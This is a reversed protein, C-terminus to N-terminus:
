TRGFSSNINRTVQSLAFMAKNVAQALNFFQHTVGDYVTCDVWVGSRRLAQALQEGESRLPDLEPLIITTAPLGNLDARDILNLQPSKLDLADRAYKSYFWEVAASNLPLTTRNEAHSSLGFDTGAMPSILALHKPVALGAAKADLCLNVALNGGSGEGVVATLELDAGLSEGHALVWRWAALVDEHAAPFVNEPAQRYHTSVVIAGLRKALMRPATDAEDLDGLVFGGGHVYLLLPTSVGPVLIKPTYVRARIDGAPGPIVRFEMAVGQDDQPDRLIKRLAQALTPQARAEVVSLTEVRKPEMKELLSLLHAMDADVRREGGAPAYLSRNEAFSRIVISSM